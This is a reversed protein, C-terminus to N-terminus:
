LFSKCVNSLLYLQHKLDQGIDRHHIHRRVIENCATSQVTEHVMSWGKKNEIPHLTQRSDVMQCKVLVATAQQEFLLGAHLGGTKNSEEEGQGQQAENDVGGVAAPTQAHSALLFLLLLCPRRRRSARSRLGACLSTLEADDRLREDLAVEKLANSVKVARIEGAGGSELILTRAGLIASIIDITRARLPEGGGASRSRAAFVRPARLTRSVLCHEWSSIMYKQM